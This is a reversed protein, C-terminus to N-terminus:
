FLVVGKGSSGSKPHGNRLEWCISKYDTERSSQNVSYPQQQKYITQAVLREAHWHHCYHVM